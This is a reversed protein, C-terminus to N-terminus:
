HLVGAQQGSSPVSELLWRPWMELTWDAKLCVACLISLRQRLPNIALTMTTADQGGVGSFTLSIAQESQVIDVSQVLWAVSGIVAQVPTQPILEAKAAQQAFGHLIEAHPMDAGQRELCRLLMPVLRQLLRQTLWIEVPFDTGVDGSLRVRDETDIYETTIRQLIQM